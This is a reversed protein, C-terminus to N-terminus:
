VSDKIIDRLGESHEEPDWSGGGIGVFRMEWGWVTGRKGVDGEDEAFMVGRHERVVRKVVWGRRKALTFFGLDRLYFQPLHHSHFVYARGTPAILREASLLLATHQSHNFILDSLILIDYEDGLSATEKGWLHGEVSVGSLDVAAGAARLARTNETVNWRLNDLLSEEPYDTIVVERAGACAAVL